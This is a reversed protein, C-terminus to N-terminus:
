SGQQLPQRQEDVPTYLVASSFHGALFACCSTHTCTCGCVRVYLTFIYVHSVVYIYGSLHAYEVSSHSVTTCYLKNGRLFHCMLSPTNSFLMMGPHLPICGTCTVALACHMNQLPLSPQSISRHWGPCLGPLSHSCPIMKQPFSPIM